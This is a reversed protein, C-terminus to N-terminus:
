YDDRALFDELPNLYQLCRIMFRADAASGDMADVNLRVVADAPTSAGSYGNFCRDDYDGDPAVDGYIATGTIIDKAAAFISAWTESGSTDKEVDITVVDAGGPATEIWAAVDKIIAPRQFVYHFKGDGTQTGTIPAFLTGYVKVTPKWEAPAQASLCVYLGDWYVDGNSGDMSMMIRLKDAAGSLTHQGSLWEWNGGGTHTDTTTTNGDDFTLIAASAVSTKCWAGFAIEVQETKLYDLFAGTDLIDQYVDVNTGSRTIKLSAAGIYKNATNRAVAGNSDWVYYSPAVALGGGWILFTDNMVLNQQGIAAQLVTTTVVTSPLNHTGDDNHEVDLRADLSAKSGRATVVEDIADAPTVTPNSSSHVVADIGSKVSDWFAADFATGDTGPGSDDSYSPFTVQTM